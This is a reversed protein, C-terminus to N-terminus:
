WYAIACTGAVGLIIEPMFVTAVWAFASAYGYNKYADETCSYIQSWYDGGTVVEMREFSLEKM